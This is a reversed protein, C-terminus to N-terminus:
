KGSEAKKKIAATQTLANALDFGIQITPQRDVMYRGAIGGDRLDSITTYFLLTAAGKNAPVLEWVTANADEGAGQKEAKKDDSVITIRDPKEYLWKQSYDSQIKVPGLKILFMSFKVRAFKSNKELVKVDTIQPIIKPYASFDTIAAWVKEPPAKIYVGAVGLEKGSRRSRDVFAVRGSALLKELQAKDFSKWIPEGAKASSSFLLVAAVAFLLRKVASIENSKKKLM